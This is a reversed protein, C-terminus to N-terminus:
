LVKLLEEAVRKVDEDKPVDLKEQKVKSFADTYINYWKVFIENYDLIKFGCMIFIMNLKNNFIENITVATAKQPIDSINEFLVESKSRDLWIARDLQAEKAIKDKGFIKFPSIRKSQPNHKRMFSLLFPVKRLVKKVTPIIATYFNNLKNGCLIKNDKFIEPFLDKHYFYLVFDKPFGIIKGESSVINLDDGLLKYDNKILRSVSATKGVGGWSPLLIAKEDKCVAAAHIFSYGAKLLMVQLLIVLWENCEQSTEIVCINEKEFYIKTNMEKDYAFEECCYINEDIKRAKEYNIDKIYKIKIFYSCKKFLNEDSSSIYEDLFIRDKWKYEEDIDIGIKNLVVKKM